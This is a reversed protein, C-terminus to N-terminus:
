IGPVDMVDFGFDIRVQRGKRFVPVLKRLEPDFYDKLMSPRPHGLYLATNTAVQPSVVQLEEPLTVTQIICPVRKIGLDRLAYARHSGNNLILRNSVHVANLYNSGFGVVIGVVGSAPGQPDYGDIRSADFDFVELFRLDNSPSVFVFSNPAVQMRRLPPQRPNAPLCLEFVERENPTVGLLAKLETAYTTNIHKQWVVLQDLEIMGITVPVIQFTRKFLAANQINEALDRLDDPVPDIVPGDAAGAESRELEVIRKNAARWEDSLTQFSVSAGDAANNKVFGLYEGMPPRGSLFVWEDQPQQQTTTTPQINAVM